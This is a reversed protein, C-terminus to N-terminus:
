SNDRREQAPGEILIYDVAGQEIAANLDNELQDKIEEYPKILGRLGYARNRGHVKGIYLAMDAIQLAREWGLVSEDLGAFPLHIFGATATVPIEKGEHVIPKEGIVKLVRDIFEPLKDVDMGPLYLLFEEGGWRVVLDSTRALNTLRESLAKLVTDGAAHGYNDNIRKFFDVDLLVLGDPHEPHTKRRENKARHTMHDQLARRNLLATLPDRRSHFELQKNAVKLKLNARRAERYLFGLLVLGLVVVVGFLVFIQQQLQKNAIVQEQLDNRQELLEIQQLRDQAQYRVELERLADDREKRAINERLTRQEILAQAQAQYMGAREYAKASYELHESFEGDNSLERLANTHRQVADIGSFDDEMVDIYGLNFQVVHALANDETMLGQAELLSLTELLISRAHAYDELHIYSSAINNMSTLVVGPLEMRRGWEIARQHTVISAETQGVTAEIYGKLLLLGPLFDHLLEQEAEHISQQILELAADYNRLQIYTQAIQQTLSLRRTARRSDNTQGLWQLSVLGQELAREYQGNNVFVQLLILNAYYGIRPNEVEAIILTLQEALALAESPNQQFERLELWNVYYEVVVDAYPYRHVFPLLGELHAEAQELERVRLFEFFEYSAARMYTSPYAEKDVSKVIRELEILREEDNIIPLYHDLAEELSAETIPRSANVPEINFSLPGDASSTMPLVLVPLLFLCLCRAVIKTM